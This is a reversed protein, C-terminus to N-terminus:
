VQEEDTVTGWSWNGNINKVLAPPNEDKQWASM